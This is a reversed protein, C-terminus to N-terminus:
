IDTEDFGSLRTSAELNGSDVYEQKKCGFMKAFIVRPFASIYLNYENVLKNLYQQASQYENALSLVLDEADSFGSEISGIAGGIFRGGGNTNATRYASGHADNSERQTTGVKRLVQLYKAKSIRVKSKAKDINEKKKVISNRFHILYLGLILVFTLFIILFLLWM